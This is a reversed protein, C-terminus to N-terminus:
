ASTLERANAVMNRRKDVESFGALNSLFDRPNGLGEAHPWDSGLLIREAPLFHALDAVDDEFFPAVWCNRHFQDVPNMRYMGPNQVHSVQLDHLLSGVWTGGNEIFALRLRPFRAFLGHALLVTAFDRILRHKQMM